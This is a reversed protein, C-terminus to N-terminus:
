TLEWLVTKRLLGRCRFTAGRLTSRSSYTSHNYRFAACIIVRRDIGGFSYSYSSMASNRSGATPASPRLGAACNPSTFPVFTVPPLCGLVFGLGAGASATPNTARATSMPGLEGGQGADGEKEM